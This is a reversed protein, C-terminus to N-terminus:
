VFFSVSIKPRDSSSFMVSAREVETEKLLFIDYKDDLPLLIHNSRDAANKVQM